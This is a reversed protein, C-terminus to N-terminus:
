HVDSNPNRIMRQYAEKVALSNTDLCFNTEPYKDKYLEEVKARFRLKARRAILQEPTLSDELNFPKFTKM